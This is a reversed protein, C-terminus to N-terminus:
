MQTLEMTQAEQHVLLRGVQVLQLQTHLVAQLHKHLPILLVVLVALTTLTAM